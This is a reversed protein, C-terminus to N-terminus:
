KKGNFKASIIFIILFPSLVQTNNKQNSDKPDPSSSFSRYLLCRPVLGTRALHINAPISQKAFYNPSICAKTASLLSSHTAIQSTKTNIIRLM